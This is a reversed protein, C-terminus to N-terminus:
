MRLSYRLREPIQGVQSQLKDLLFVKKEKM